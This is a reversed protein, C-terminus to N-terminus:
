GNNQGKEARAYNRCTKKPWGCECNSGDDREYACANQTPLEGIKVLKRSDIGYAALENSEESSFADGEQTNASGTQLFRIRNVISFAAVSQPPL